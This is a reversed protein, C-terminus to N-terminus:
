NGSPLPPPPPPPNGGSRQRRKQPPQGQSDSKPEGAREAALREEIRSILMERQEPTLRALLAMVRDRQDPSIDGGAGANRAPNKKPAEGGFKQPVESAPGGIRERVRKAEMPLRKQMEMDAMEDKVRAISAEFAKQQETNLLAFIQKQVDAPRPGAERLDRLRVMAQERQQADPESKAEGDQLAEDSPPKPRGAGPGGAGGPPGYEGTKRRLAQLEDKHQAMFDRQAKTFEDNLAMIRARQEPTARVSEPANEGIAQNLARMWAMHPVERMRDKGADPNGAGFTAGSSGPVATEKIKPGGLAPAGEAPQAPPEAHALPLTLGASAIILALPRLTM